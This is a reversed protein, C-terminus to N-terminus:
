SKMLQTFLDTKPKGVSEGFSKCSKPDNKRLEYPFM